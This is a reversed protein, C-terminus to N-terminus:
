MFRNLSSFWSLMLINVYKSIDKIIPQEQVKQIAEKDAKSVIESCIASAFPKITEETIGKVRDMVEEDVKRAGERVADEVFQPVSTGHGVAEERITGKAVDELVDITSVVKGGLREKGQKLHDIDKKNQEVEEEIASIRAELAVLRTEIGQQVTNLAQTILKVEEKTEEDEQNMKQFAESLKTTCENLYQLAKYQVIQEKGLAMGSFQHYVGIVM